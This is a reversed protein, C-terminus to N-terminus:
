WNIRRILSTIHAESACAAVIIGAAYNAVNNIETPDICRGLSHAALAGGKFDIASGKANFAIHFRFNECVALYQVASAFSFVGRLM